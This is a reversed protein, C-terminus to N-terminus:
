QVLGAQGVVDREVPIELTRTWWLWRSAPTRVDAEGNGGRYAFGMFLTFVIPMAM